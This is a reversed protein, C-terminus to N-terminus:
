GEVVELYNGLWTELQDFTLQQDNDSKADKPNPHVELIFGDYPLRLYKSSEKLVVEDDGFVHSPDFIMPLGTQKKTKMAWDHDPVNRFNNPNLVRTIEDPLGKLSFGRHCLLLRDLSLQSNAIHQSLNTSIERDWQMSNKVMLYTDQSRDAIANAIDILNGSSTNRAGTWFLVRQVGTEKMANTVDLVHNYTQVETAYILGYTGAIELADLLISPGEGYWSDGNTRPKNFPGRIIKILEANKNMHELFAATRRFMEPGEYGCPGASLIQGFKNTLPRLHEM